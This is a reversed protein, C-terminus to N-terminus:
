SCGYVWDAVDDALSEVRVSGSLRGYVTRRVLNTEVDTLMLGGGATVTAFAKTSSYAGLQEQFRSLAEPNAMARVVVEVALFKLMNPVPTLAAAWADNKSAAEAIVATAADLLMEATAAETSSLTRGLRTAIDEATAFAM